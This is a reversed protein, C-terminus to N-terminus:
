QKQTKKHTKQTNKQTNKQTKQEYTSFVHKSFRHSDSATALGQLLVISNLRQNCDLSHADVSSVYSRGGGSYVSENCHYSSCWSAIESKSAVVAFTRIHRRYSFDQSFEVLSGM